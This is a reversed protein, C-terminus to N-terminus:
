MRECAKVYLWAAAFFLITTSVFILDAMMKHRGCHAGLSWATRVRLSLGPSDRQALRLESRSLFGWGEFHCADHWQECARFGRRFRALEFRGDHLDCAESGRPGANQLAV